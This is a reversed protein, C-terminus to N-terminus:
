VAHLAVHLCSTVAEIGFWVSHLAMGLSPTSFLSLVVLLSSIFTEIDGEPSM